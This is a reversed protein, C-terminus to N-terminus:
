GLLLKLYELSYHPVIPLFMGSKEIRQFHSGGNSAYLIFKGPYWKLQLIRIFYVSKDRLNNIKNKFNLDFNRILELNWLKIGGANRETEKVGLYFPVLSRPSSIPETEIVATNGIDLVPCLGHFVDCNWTFFTRETLVEFSLTYLTHYKFFVCSFVLFPAPPIIWCCSVQRAHMFGQIGDRAGCVVFCFFYVFVGFAIEFASSCAGLAAATTLSSLFTQPGCTGPHQTDHTPQPRGWEPHIFGTM